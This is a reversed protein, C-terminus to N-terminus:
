YVAPDVASKRLKADVMFFTFKVKECAIIVQSSDLEINSIHRCNRLYLHEVKSNQITFEQLNPMEYTPLNRLRTSHVRIKRLAHQNKAHIHQLFSNNANLEELKTLPRLDLHVM